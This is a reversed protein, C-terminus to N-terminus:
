KPTAKAWRPCSRTACEATVAEAWRQDLPVRSVQTGLGPIDLHGYLLCTTPVVSHTGKESPM